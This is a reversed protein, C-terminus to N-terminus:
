PPGILEEFRAATREAIGRMTDELAAFAAAGTVRGIVRQLAPTAEGGDFDGEVTLRLIGQLNRWLRAADALEAADEAGILGRGGAAELVSVTDTKLIEPHAAGHRLQLYQAIFEVDVLGGPMHKISWLGDGGLEDRMRARMRAVNGALEEAGRPATLVERIAEELRPRLDGEAHIVRTRTLAQHEWTWADNRQYRTFAELSSAIPGSNGTPRLRMDVEYLKGDAMPATVAGIFRRCLQAYYQSPMLPRAGDSPGAEPPHDYVFLLDLDSGMTMERSGLKGFALLAVAGGEIRGHAAAFEEAVAPLLAGLCADAIASLPPGAEVPSLVGRLMHVGIQFTRDNAWRRLQDLVDQLDRADAVAASLEARMEDPGFERAYFLRVLGRRAADATAPDFEAEEPLDLSAFENSLVSDLLAPHRALWDALRPAAGMIEGVLDLLGPNATFLSFLQIGAPLRSLFDNFRLLARDPDASGAFAELVSPVLETLLERARTSNMARYRGSHWVRIMTSVREPEAYGMEALTTLTDPDHDGGTFVLNGAGSLGPKDEFLAAYHREVTRLEATVAEAFDAAAAFGFFAAIRALGDEDGPLSHTQGDEVMQLRHELRRHFRYAAKLEAAAGPAVHGAAVLGDLAQMTGRVRLSPDKGGWILQQTQAFFEIERIGGRGLKVNHSALAVEGGGRHANIQRKISQIDQIAAFDLNRRWMFPRLTDLFAQGAELDGAVPRAKIMAAREWNQGASEYYLEAAQVSMAPPTSGPDPRLRLDTRFVYGDATREEMLSVLGRALRTFIRQLETKGTHPAKDQDFLVILDVDSSFNLEGAGLKGMGLVILGSGREPRDPDPLALEGSDHLRRLLHRCSASLAASALDSLAGTVKELPWVSAIDALAISLAARRKARRLRRMADKVPEEGLRSDDEVAALAAAYADDPGAEFLTRAFGQDAILANSLYPSNGFAAALLAWAGPDDVAARAFAATEADAGRGAAELWRERRVDLAEPDGPGPPAVGGARWIDAIASM